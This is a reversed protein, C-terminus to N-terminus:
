RGENKLDRCVYYGILPLREPSFPYGRVIYSLENEKQQYLWERKYWRIYQSLPLNKGNYGMPENIYSVSNYIFNLSLNNPISVGSCEAREKKHEGIIIKPALHKQFYSYYKADEEGNIENKEFREIELDRSCKSLGSVIIKMPIASHFFNHIGNINSGQCLFSGDCYTQFVFQCSENDGEEAAKLASLLLDKNIIATGNYEEIRSACDKSNNIKECYVFKSFIKSNSAAKMLGKDPVFTTNKTSGVGPYTLYSFLLYNDFSMSDKISSLIKKFNGATTAAFGDTSQNYAYIKQDINLSSPNKTTYNTQACGTLAIITVASIAFKKYPKM